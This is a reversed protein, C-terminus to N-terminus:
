YIKKIVIKNKFDIGDVVELIHKLVEIDTLLSKNNIIIKDNM